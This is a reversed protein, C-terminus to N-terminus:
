NRGFLIVFNLVYEGYKKSNKVLKAKIRVKIKLFGYCKITIICLIKSM